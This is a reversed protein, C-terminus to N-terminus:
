NLLSLLSTIPHFSVPYLGGDFPIAGAGLEKMAKSVKSTMKLSEGLDKVQIGAPQFVLGFLVMRRWGKMRNAKTDEVEELMTDRAHYLLARPDEDIIPPPNDDVRVVADTVLLTKTEKHFFATDGFGGVGKPRLPGLSVHEIDDKWPSANSNQPLENVKRGFPLFFSTPLNIPFAYQGPQVYVEADPFYSSFAGLTGKHEIALSSLTIYRVRGHKNELDRVM